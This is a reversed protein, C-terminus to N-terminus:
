RRSAHAEYAVRVLIGSHLYKRREGASASKMIMGLRRHINEIAGSKIGPKSRKPDYV